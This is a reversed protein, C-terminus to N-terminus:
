VSGQSYFSETHAGRVVLSHPGVERALNMFNDALQRRLDDQWNDELLFLYWSDRPDVPVTALDTAVFGM